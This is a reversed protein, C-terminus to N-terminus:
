VLCRMQKFVHQRHFLVLWRITRTTIAAMCLLACVYWHTAIHLRVCMGITAIHLPTAQAPNKRRKGGPIGNVDAGAILLAVVVQLMCVM